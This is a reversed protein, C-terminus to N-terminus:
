EEDDDDNEESEEIEEKETKIEEKINGHTKYVKNNEVTLYGRDGKEEGKFSLQGNLTYNFPEFVNKILYKLWQDYEYFKEAGNWQLQGEENIEWQMWLSPQTCPPENFNVVGKENDQGSSTSLPDFYFEGEVGHTKLPNVEEDVPPLEKVNRKMRRSNMLGNVFASHKKEIKPKIDIKGKFTTTYGM